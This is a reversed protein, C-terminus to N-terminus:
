FNCGQLDGQSIENAYWKYIKKNDDYYLFVFLRVTRTYFINKAEFTAKIWAGYRKIKENSALGIKVLTPCNKELLSGSQFENLKFSGAVYSEMLWNKSQKQLQNEVDNPMTLFLRPINQGKIALTMLLMTAILIIKKM